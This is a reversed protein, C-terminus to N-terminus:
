PIRWRQCADQKSHWRILREVLGDHELHGESCPSFIEALSQPEAPLNADVFAVVHHEDCGLQSRALVVKCDQQPRDLAPEPVRIDADKAKM